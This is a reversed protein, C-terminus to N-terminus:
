AVRKQKARLSALSWKTRKMHSASRGGPAHRGIDQIRQAIEMKEAIPLNALKRRRAEKQAFLKTMDPYKKMESAEEKRGIFCEM